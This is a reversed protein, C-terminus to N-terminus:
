SRLTPTYFTQDSRKEEADSNERNVNEKPHTISDGSTSTDSTGSQEETITSATDIEEVGEVKEIPYIEYLIKEGNASNAIQLTAERVTNEKDQIYTTWM